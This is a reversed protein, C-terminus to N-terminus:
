LGPALPCSGSSPPYTSASPSAVATNRMPWSIRRCHCGVRTLVTVLSTHGLACILGYLAMPLHPLDGCVVGSQPWRPHRAPCRPSRGAADKSLALRLAALRYIGGQLRHVPHALHHSWWAFVPTIPTARSAAVRAAAPRTSSSFASPSSALVFEVFAKPNGVLAFYTTEDHFDVTITRNHRTPKATQGM